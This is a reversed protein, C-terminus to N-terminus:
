VDEPDAGLATLVADLSQMAPETNVSITIEADRLALLRRYETFAANMVMTQAWQVDVKINPDCRRIDETKYVDKLWAKAREHAALEDPHYPGLPIPVYPPKDSDPWIVAAFYIGHTDM